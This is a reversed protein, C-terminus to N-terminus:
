KNDLRSLFLLGLIPSSCSKGFEKAARDVSKLRKLSEMQTTIKAKYFGSYKHFLLALVPFTGRETSAWNHNSVVLAAATHGVLFHM